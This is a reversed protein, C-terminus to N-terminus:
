GCPAVEGHNDNGFAVVIGKEKAVDTAASQCGLLVLILLALVGLLFLNNKKSV